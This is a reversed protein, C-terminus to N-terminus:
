AKRPEKVVTHVLPEKHDVVVFDVKVVFGSPNHLEQETVDRNTFDFEGTDTGVVRKESKM